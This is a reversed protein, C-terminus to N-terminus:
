RHSRYNRSLKAPKEIKGGVRTVVTRVDDFRFNVGHTVAQATDGVLWLNDAHCGVAIVMLAVECQTSDQM